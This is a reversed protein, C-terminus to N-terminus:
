MIKLLVATMDDKPEKATFHVVDTRIEQLEDVNHRNLIDGLRKLGYTEGSSNKLEPIGDTVFLLKDGCFLDVVNDEYTVDEFMRSIPLGATLLEYSTRNRSLIPCPNHGANSFKFTNEKRNYVGYFCTFYINVDLDISNFKKKIEELATAPNLLAKTTLSKFMFNVFMTVQSSAFGHGVTDSIYIGLNDRNIEFVNFMDGSLINSPRYLYDIMTGGIFGKEPLLGVQIKKAENMETALEKNKNIIERQLKKEMTINRFVEVVAVIEEGDFIPSCKVSYFNGEIYEERQIIEGTRLTREAVSLNCFYRGDPECTMEKASAGMLEEMASNVFIVQNDSDLVRVLDAIGNLINLNIKSSLKEM